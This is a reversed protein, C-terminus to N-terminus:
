LPTASEPIVVAAVLDDGKVWTTRPKPGIWVENVRVDSATFSDPNAPEVEFLDSFLVRFVEVPDRQVLLLLAEQAAKGIENYPFVVKIFPSGIRNTQDRAFNGWIAITITDPMKFDAGQEKNIADIESQSISDPSVTLVRVIHRQDTDPNTDTIRYHYPFVWNAISFELAKNVDELTVYPMRGRSARQKQVALYRHVYDTIEPQAGVDRQLKGDQQILIDPLYHQFWGVVAKLATTRIIEVLESITLSERHAATTDPQWPVPPKEKHLMLNHLSPVNKKNENLILNFLAPHGNNEENM